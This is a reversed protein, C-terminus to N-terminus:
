REQTVSLFLRINEFNEQHSSIFSMWSIADNQCKEKKSYKMLDQLTNYMLGNQNQYFRSM